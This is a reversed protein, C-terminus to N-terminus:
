LLTTLNSFIILKTIMNLNIKFDKLVCCLFVALM